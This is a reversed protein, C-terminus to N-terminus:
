IGSGQREPKIGLQSVLEHCGDELESIEPISGTINDAFWDINIIEEPTMIDDTDNMLIGSCSFLALKGELQVIQPCLRMLFSRLQRLAARRKQGAKRRGKRRSEKNLIYANGRRTHRM